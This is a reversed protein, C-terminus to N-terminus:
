LVSNWVINMKSWVSEISYANIVRERALRGYEQAKTPNSIFDIIADRLQSVNQPEVCVGCPQESHIQLMEPIAGVPTTIIPCGCAMSELIVNPFGETYTPLVFVGCSKMEKIVSEIPIQGVFSLWDANGSLNILSSKVDDVVPGILRVKINPIEKCAEILEFVGKTRVIHGVFTITQEDRAVIDDNDAIGRIKSGLPNPILHINTLGASKLTNYSAEDMLIVATAMKAVKLLLKWEWNRKQSLQPIRGFHFHIITKVDHRQAMKIMLYDKALSISASSSIHLVDYENQRLKQKLAILVKSYTRVGYYIRKILSRGIVVDGRSADSMSLVDLGCDIRGELEYYNVINEAWQAIGGISGNYPTAFLIKM